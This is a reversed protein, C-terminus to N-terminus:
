KKLSKFLSDVETLANIFRSEENMFPLLKQKAQTLVNIRDQNVLTLIRLNIDHLIDSILHGNINKFLFTEPLKNLREYEKKTNQLNQFYALLRLLQSLDVLGNINISNQQTEPNSIASLLKYKMDSVGIEKLEQDIEEIKQQLASQRAKKSNLNVKKVALNSM